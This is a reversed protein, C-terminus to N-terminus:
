HYSETNKAAFRDYEELLSSNLDQKAIFQELLQRGQDWGEKEFATKVQGTPTNVIEWFENKRGAARYRRYQVYHGSEHFLLFLPASFDPDRRDYYVIISCLPSPPHFYSVPGALAVLQISLRPFRDWCLFAKARDLISKSVMGSGTLSQGEM